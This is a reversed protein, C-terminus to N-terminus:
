RLADQPGTIPKVTADPVSIAGTVDATIKYLKSQFLYM